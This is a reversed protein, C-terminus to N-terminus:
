IACGFDKIGVLAALKGTHLKSLKQLFFANGDAHVTSSAPMIINEHLPKPLTDFILLDIEVGIIADTFCSPPQFAVQCKVIM